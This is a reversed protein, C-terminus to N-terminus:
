HAMRLRATYVLKYKSMCPKIKSVLMHSSAPDVLYGGHIHMIYIIIYIISGSSSNVTKSKHTRTRIHIHTHCVCVCM